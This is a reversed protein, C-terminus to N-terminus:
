RSQTCNKAIKSGKHIETLPHYTKKKKGRPASCALKPMQKGVLPVPVYTSFFIDSRLCKQNAHLKAVALTPEKSSSGLGM